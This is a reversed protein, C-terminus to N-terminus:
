KAVKLLAVIKDEDIGDLSRIKIHKMTKGGKTEDTEEEGLEEDSEPKGPLVIGLEEPTQTVKQYQGLKDLYEQVRNRIELMIQYARKQNQSGKPFSEFEKRLAIFIHTAGNLDGGQLATHVEKAYDRSLDFAGMEEERTLGPQEEAVSVKSDLYKVIDEEIFREIEM